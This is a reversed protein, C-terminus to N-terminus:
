QDGSKVARIEHLGKSLPVPFNEFEECDFRYDGDVFVAAGDTDAMCDIRVLSDALAFAPLLLCLAVFLRM